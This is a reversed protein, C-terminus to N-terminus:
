DRTHYTTWVNPILWWMFHGLGRIITYIYSNTTNRALITTPVQLLLTVNDCNNIISYLPQRSRSWMSNYYFKCICDTCLVVLITLEVRPSTYEICRLNKISYLTDTVHMLDSTEIRGWVNCGYTANFMLYM